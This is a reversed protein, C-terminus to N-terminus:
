AKRLELYSGVSIQNPGVKEQVVSLSSGEIVKHVWQRSRLFYNICQRERGPGRCTLVDIYARGGNILLSDIISIYKPFSPCLYSVMCSIVTDFKQNDSKLSLIDACDLKDYLQNSKGSKPDVFLKGAALKLYEPSLDVGQLFGSRAKILQGTMGTGCGLDIVRGLNLHDESLKILRRSTREVEPIEYSAAKDSTENGLDERLITSNKEAEGPKLSVSINKMLNEAEDIYGAASLFYAVSRLRDKFDNRTAFDPLAEIILELKIPLANIIRKSFEPFLQTQTEDSYYGVMSWGVIVELIEDLHATRCGEELGSVIIELIIRLDEKKFNLVPFLGDKMLSHRGTRFVSFWDALLTVSRLSKRSKALEICLSFGYQKDGVLMECESLIRHGVKLNNGERVASRSLTLALKFDKSKFADILENNFTTKNPACDTM